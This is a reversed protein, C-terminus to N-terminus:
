KGVSRFLLPYPNTNGITLYVDVSKLYPQISVRTEFARSIRVNEPELLLCFRTGALVHFRSFSSICAFGSDSSGWFRLGFDLDLGV